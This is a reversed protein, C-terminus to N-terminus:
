PTWSPHSWVAASLSKSVLEDVRHPRVRTQLSICQFLPKTLRVFFFLRQHALKLCSCLDYAHIYSWKRSIYIMGCWSVSWGSQRSCSDEGLEGYCEWHHWNAPRVPGRSLQAMEHGFSSPLFLHIPLPYQQQVDERETVVGEFVLLRVHRV